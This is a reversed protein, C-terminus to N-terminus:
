IDNWMKKSKSTTKKVVPKSQKVSNGKASDLLAQHLEKSRRLHYLLLVMIITVEVLIFFSIVSFTLILEVLPVDVGFVFVM